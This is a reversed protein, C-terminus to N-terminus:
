ILSSSGAQILLATLDDQLPAITALRFRALIAELAAEGDQVIMVDAVIRELKAAGLMAGGPTAAEIMADSYLFLSDGATFPQVRNQYAHGSRLGIPMGTGNLWTREGDPSIVLPHPAGAAAYTLTQAAVDIFGIFFTAYQGRALMGCLESNIAGLYAAPDEPRPPPLRNVLTHLRVTDLAAGVGHGAFDCIYFGASTDGVPVVGWFDGGLSSSPTFRSSISLNFRQSVWAITAPTPLMSRQVAAAKSLEDTMAVLRGRLRRVLLLNNLHVRVRGIFEDGLIPKSVYDTAGAEFMATRGEESDSGTQVIVPIGAFEPMARLRRLMDLGNMRPMVIDLVVMDPRVAAAAELGDLGDMAFTVKDVGIESLFHGVLDHNFEDDDVVLVKCQSFDVLQDTQKM